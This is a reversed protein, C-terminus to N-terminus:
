FYFAASNTTWKNRNEWTYASTLGDQIDLTMTFNKHQARFGLAVDSLIILLCLPWVTTSWIEKNSRPVGVESGSICYVSFQSDYLVWLFYLLLKLSLFFLFSKHKDRQRSQGFVIRTNKSSTCMHLCWPSLFDEVTIMAQTCYLDKQVRLAGVFFRWFGRIGWKSNEM